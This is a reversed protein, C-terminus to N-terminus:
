TWGAGRTRGRPGQTPVRRADRSRRSAKANGIREGESELGAMFGIMWGLDEMGQEVGRQWVYVGVAAVVIWMGLRVAVSVWYIITKRLMNLLKLSVLLMVALLVLTAMDPADLFIGLAKNGLKYAPWLYPFAFRYFYSQSLFFYRRLPGLYAEYPTYYTTYLHFAQPFYDIM